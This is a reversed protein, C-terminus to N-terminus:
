TKIVTATGAETDFEITVSEGYEVWQDVVDKLWSGEEYEDLQDKVDPTKFSLKFKM